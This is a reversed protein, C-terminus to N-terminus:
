GELECSPVGRSWMNDQESYAIIRAICDDGTLNSDEISVHGADPGSGFVTLLFVFTIM